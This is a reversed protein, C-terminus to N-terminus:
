VNKYKMVHDAADQPDTFMKNCTCHYRTFGDRCHKTTVKHEKELDEIISKLVLKDIDDAIKKAMKSFGKQIEPHNWKDDEKM